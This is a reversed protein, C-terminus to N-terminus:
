NCTKKNKFETCAQKGPIGDVKTHLSQLIKQFNYFYFNMQQIEKFMARFMTISPSSEREAELQGTMEQQQLNNSHMAQDLATAIQDWSASESANNILRKATQEDLSPPDEVAIKAKDPETKCVSSPFFAVANCFYKWDDQLDSGFILDDNLPTKVPMFQVSVNMSVSSLSASLGNKCKPTEIMNGPVKNPSISHTLVKKLNDNIKEVHCAICNDPDNYKSTPTEYYYKIFLCFSKFCVRDKKWNDAPAAQVPPREPQPIEPLVDDIVTTNTTILGESGDGGEKNKDGSETQQTGGGEPKKKCVIQSQQGNGSNQSEQGKEFKELALALDTKEACEQTSIESIEQPSMQEYGEPCQEQAQQTGTAQPQVIINEGGIQQTPQNPQAGQKEPETGAPPEPLGESGAPESKNYAKGIDIPDTKLFLLKEIIELDNILDFGSDSLDGNAFIESPTTAAEVDAQLQIVAKEQEFRRRMENMKRIVQDQSLTDRKNMIPMYSGNRIFEADNQTIGYRGALNKIAQKDPNVITKKLVKLYLDKGIKEVDKKPDKSPTTGFSDFWNDSMTDPLLRSFISTTSYPDYADSFPQPDEGLAILPRIVATIMMLFGITILIKKM